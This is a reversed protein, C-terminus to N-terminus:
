EVYFNNKMLRHGPLGNNWVDVGVPRILFSEAEPKRDYLSLHVRTAQESPTFEFEFQLWDKYVNTGFMIGHDENKIMQDAADFERIMFAPFGAVEHDIKVWVTAVMKIPPLSGHYLTIEAHEDNGKLTEQGFASFAGKDFGNFHFWASDSLFWQHDLSDYTAKSADFQAVLLDPDTALDKLRLERLAFAGKEILLKTRSLLQQEEWSIPTEAQSIVLIPRDDPYDAIIEKQIWPSSLLQVLKASESVSTRSMSGCALPLGLNYAMKYARATIPETQWRSVFKESGVNFAPIPLLAQFDSADVGAEKLWEAFDPEKNKFVNDGKYSRTAKTHTQVHIAMEWSWFGAAALLMWMGIQRAGKQSLVRYLQYLEYVILLTFPYYFTWAFRGLSRFQRLPGLMELFSDPFWKVPIAMAFLLVLFSSWFMARLSSPLVPKWISVFRGKLGYKALRVLWAIGLFGAVAGVYSFGEVPVPEMESAFRFWADKLPGQPPLFVSAWSAKYDLFGFPNAPRDSVHDTLLMIGQFVVLAGIAAGVLGIAGSMAAKRDPQWNQLLYVLALATLLLLGMLLYYAHIWAFALLLTGLGFARLWSKGRDLFLIGQYWIAPIVAAYALAYHGAFRHIQPSMLSILIAGPIAIWTPLGYHKGIRFMLWMCLLLSVFVLTNLIGVTYDSIPFIHHHVFRLIASILPQNDTFLVQDGYPYNMGTFSFGADYKIYWSPTFYNKWGDLGGGLLFNNPHTLIRDFGAFMVLVGAVLLLLDSRWSTRNKLM